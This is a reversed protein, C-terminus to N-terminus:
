VSLGNEFGSNKTIQVQTLAHVEFTSECSCLVKMFRQMEAAFNFHKEEAPKAKQMTHLLPFVWIRSVCFVDQVSVQERPLLILSPNFQMHSTNTVSIRIDEQFTYQESSAMM